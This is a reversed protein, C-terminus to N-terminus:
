KNDTEKDKEREGQMKQVAVELSSKNLVAFYRQQNSMWVLSHLKPILLKFGFTHEEIGHIIHGNCDVCCILIM